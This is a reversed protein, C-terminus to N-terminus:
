GTDAIVAESPSQQKTDKHSNTRLFKQYGPLSTVQCGPLQFMSRHRSDASTQGIDPSYVIDINSDGM